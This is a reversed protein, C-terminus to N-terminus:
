ARDDRRLTPAHGLGMAEGVIAFHEEWSRPRVTRRAPSRDAAAEIAELWAPGDLPDILRAERALERHAAIDSAIVPAGLALAEAVPLNFGETFSPSLLARAGGILRALEGDALGSVEHVFRGIPLSRDLHDIVSENEWGRQGVLVLVPTAEGRREALRRWLTLLFTLNKRPEITGVCVFYPRARLSEDPPDIFRAELGLPAVRISPPASGRRRAYAVIEEATANSNAIILTQHDLVADMRRRHWVAAM